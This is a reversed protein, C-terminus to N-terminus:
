FKLVFVKFKKVDGRMPKNLKVKRGRYKIISKNKNIWKKRNKKLGININYENNKKYETYVGSSDYIYIKNPVADKSLNIERMPVRIEPFIKGKLYIKRSSPFPGITINKKKKNLKNLNM